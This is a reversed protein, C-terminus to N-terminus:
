SHVDISGAPPTYIILSSWCILGAVGTGSGEEATKSKAHPPAASIVPAAQRNLAAAPKTIAATEKWPIPKVAQPSDRGERAQCYASCAVATNVSRRSLSVQNFTWRADQLRWRRRGLWPQGPCDNFERGGAELVARGLKPLFLLIRVQPHLSYEWADM